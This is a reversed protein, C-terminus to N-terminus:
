LLYSCSAGSSCSDTHSKMIPANARCCDIIRTEISVVLTVVGLRGQLFCWWCVAGAPELDRTVTMVTVMLIVIAM